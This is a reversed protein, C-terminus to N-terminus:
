NGGIPGPEGNVAYYAGMAGNGIHEEGFKEGFDYSLTTFAWEAM